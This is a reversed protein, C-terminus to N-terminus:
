PSARGSARRRALAGLLFELSRSRLKLGRRSYSNSLNRVQRELLATDSADRFWAAKPEFGHSRLYSCCEAKSRRAGRHFPDILRIEDGIYLRLMVHGPLPVAAARLKLRRAVCLYLVTLTLPMGKRREIARHLFVNDPQDYHSTSGAFGIEGALYDVLAQAREHETPGARDAVASAFADLARVYPRADFRDQALHGLMLMGRELDVAGGAYRMLRGVRRLVRYEFLLLRTRARLRPLSSRAAHALARQASPGLRILARAAAERSSPSDDALLEIM